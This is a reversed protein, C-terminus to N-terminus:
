VANGVTKHFSGKSKNHINNAKTASCDLKKQQSKVNKNLFAIKWCKLFLIILVIM